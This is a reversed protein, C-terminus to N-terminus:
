WRTRTTGSIAGGPGRIQHRPSSRDYITSYWNIAWALQLMNASGWGTVEDYGPGACYYGSDTRLRHRRQQQLRLHHRLLPLAAATQYIGEDYLYYNANGM